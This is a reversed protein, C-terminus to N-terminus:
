AAVLPTAYVQRAGHCRGRGAPQHGACLGWQWRLARPTQAAGHCLCWYHRGGGTGRARASQGRMLACPRPAPGRPLASAVGPLLPAACCPWRLLM